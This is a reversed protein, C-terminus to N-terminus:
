SSAQPHTQGESAQVLVFGKGELALQFAEGSGRGIFAGAKVTSRISTELSTSWAVAANTDVFTPQDVQLLVPAGHCVVAVRGRGTFVTNFIGGSVMGGLGRVRNIDWELTSEFALVNDGNVTLSDDELDILHVDWANHALFVDGSGSVRMLPLGEGTFTKKMFRGVGGAGQFAFDIGGQYAVMAGQRGLFEGGHLGVRLMKRNQLHMGPERVEQAEQFLESRM